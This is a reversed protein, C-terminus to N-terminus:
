RAMIPFDPADSVTVTVQQGETLEKVRRAVYADLRKYTLRGSADAGAKGNLGEVVAQTFAGSRSAPLYMSRADASSFFMVLSQKAREGAPEPRCDAIRGAYSTDVFLLVTGPIRQLAAMIECSGIRM